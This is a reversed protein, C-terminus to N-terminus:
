NYRIKQGVRIVSRSSLGNLKYIKFLSVGYRASVHSLTQGSKITHYKRRRLEVLYEFNKQNLEFITSNLEGEKINIISNPNIANGLYRIELHLHPGSSRGTNGGLAIVDGAEVVDGELVNYKSLHAYYTELGNDHRILVLKGYGSSYGVFRVKGSFISKISDGINLKIDVGYHFRGRRPGFDSTVHGCIPYSFDCEDYSLNLCVTDKMKALDVGKFHVSNTLWSKYVSYAPYNKLSDLKLITISDLKTNKSFFLSDSPNSSLKVCLSDDHLVNSILTDSDFTLSDNALSLANMKLTDNDISYALLFYFCFGLSIIFRRIM